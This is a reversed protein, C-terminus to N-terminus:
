NCWLDKEWGRGLMLRFKGILLSVPPLGLGPCSTTVDGLREQGYEVLKDQLLQSADFNTEGGTGLM